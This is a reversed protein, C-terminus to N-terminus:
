KWEETLELNLEFASIESDTLNPYAERLLRLLAGHRASYPTVFISTIGFLELYVKLLNMGGVILDYRHSEKFLLTHIEERPTTELSALLSNLFHAPIYEFTEPDKEQSLTYLYQLAKLTGSSGTVSDLGTEALTGPVRLSKMIDSQLMDFNYGQATPHTCANCYNEFVTLAGLPISWSFPKSTGPDGKILSIESSRGGIDLLLSPVPIKKGFASIGECILNAEEVGGLIHIESGLAESFIDIVEQANLADRFVATGFAYIHLNKFTDLRHKILSLIQRVEEVKEPSIRQKSLSGLRPLSRFKNILFLTNSEPHPVTFIDARLASSGLDVLAFHKCNNNNQTMKYNANYSSWKKQL